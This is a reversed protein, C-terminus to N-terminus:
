CNVQEALFVPLHQLTVSIFVGALAASAMFHAFPRSSYIESPSLLVACEGPVDGVAVPPASSAEHAGGSLQAQDQSQLPPESAPHPAVPGEDVCVLTECKDIHSSSSYPEDNIETAATATSSPNGAPPPTSSSRLASFTSAVGGGSAHVAPTVPVFTLAALVVVTFCVAADVRLSARWGFQEILRANLTASAFTGVGSGAVAVGTALARRSTFYQSVVVLSSIWSLSMGIGGLLGYTLYLVGVSPAWSSLCLAVGVIVGGLACVPRTGHARLLASSISGCGMM